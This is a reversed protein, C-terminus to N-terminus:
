KLPYFEDWLAAITDEDEFKGGNFAKYQYTLINNNEDFLRAVRRGPM